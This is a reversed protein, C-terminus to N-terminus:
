NNGMIGFLEKGARPKISNHALEFRVESFLPGFIGRYEERNGGFPPGDKKEMEFFLGVLKGGDPLLDKVKKAYAQRQALTELTCFFTQEIVLDFEQDLKFFDSCLLQDKPFNPVRDAFNQLSQEAWDCLYVATFGQRFLYEAEHANGCGPILIRLSKDTLQDIYEKIPTTISSADWPADDNLYRNNWYTNDM